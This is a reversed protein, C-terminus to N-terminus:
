EGWDATVLVNIVQTSGSAQYVWLEQGAPLPFDVAGSSFGSLKNVFAGASASGSTFAVRFSGTNDSLYVRRQFDDTDAVKVATATAVSTEASSFAAM